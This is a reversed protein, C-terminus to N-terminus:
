LRAISGKKRHRMEEEEEEEIKICFFLLLDNAVRENQTIRFFFAASFNKRSALRNM